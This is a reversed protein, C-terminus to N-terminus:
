QQVILEAGVRTPEKNLLSCHCCCGPLVSTLLHARHWPKLPHHLPQQLGALSFVSFPSSFCPLSFLPTACFVGSRSHYYQQLHCSTFNTACDIFSSTHLHVFIHRKLFISRGFAQKFHKAQQFLSSLFVYDCIFMTEVKRFWM